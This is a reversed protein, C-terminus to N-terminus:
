KISHSAMKVFYAPWGSVPGRPSAAKWKLYWDGSEKISLFPYQPHIFDFYTRFLSAATAMPIDDIVKLRVWPKAPPSSAIKPTASLAQFTMDPPSSHSQRRQTNMSARMPPIAYQWPNDVDPTMGTQFSINRSVDGGSNGFGNISVPGSVHSGTSDFSGSQLLNDSTPKPYGPHNQNLMQELIAAHNELAPVYGAPYNQFTDQVVPL